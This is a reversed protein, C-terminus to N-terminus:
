SCCPPDKATAHSSGLGAANPAHLRLWQVSAPPVPTVGLLAIPSENGSPWFELVLIAPCNLSSAPGEESWMNRMGSTLLGGQGSTRLFAGQLDLPSCGRLISQFSLTLRETIDLQKCGWPRNM